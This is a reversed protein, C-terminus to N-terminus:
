FSLNIECGDVIIGDYQPDSWHEFMESIPEGEDTFSESMGRQCENSMKFLKNESYLIYTYYTTTSFDSEVITTPIVDLVIAKIPKEIKPMNIEIIQGKKLEM